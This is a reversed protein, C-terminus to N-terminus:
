PMIIGGKSMYSQARHKTDMDVIIVSYGISAIFNAMNLAIYHKSWDWRCGTVVIGNGRSAFSEM